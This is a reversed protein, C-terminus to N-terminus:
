YATHENNIISESTVKGRLVRYVWSTYILIFPLFIVTALLMIFLTLQSSSSDWVTLSQNPYSSSPLIFPFLSLGVTAIVGTVALSSFVFALLAKRSLSIALLAAFIAGLPALLTVPMMQYNVFWAAPQRIVTKFLPNSPGDHVVTNMLSYGEIGFYLWFGGLIFLFIM